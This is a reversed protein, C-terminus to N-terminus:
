FLSEHAGLRGRPQRVGEVYWPVRRRCHTDALYWFIRSGSRLSGKGRQVPLVDLLDRSLAAEPVQETKEDKERFGGNEALSTILRMLVRRIRDVNEGIMEM